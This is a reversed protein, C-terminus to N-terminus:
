GTKAETTLAKRAFDDAVAFPAPNENATAARAALDDYFSNPLTTANPKAGGDVVVVRKEHRQWLLYLRYLMQGHRDRAEHLHECAGHMSDHSSTDRWQDPGTSRVADVIALLQVRVAPPQGLLFDFAPVTRRGGDTKLLWEVDWLM